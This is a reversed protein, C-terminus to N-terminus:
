SCSWGGDLPICSGNIQKARDSLLFVVLDACESISIFQGTPIRPMVAEVFGDPPLVKEDLAIDTGPVVGPNIANVRIKYKGFEVAMAKTLYDVAAKTSGYVHAGDFPMLMTSVISSVNLIACGDGKEKLRPLVCKTVHILGKVNVDYLSDIKERGIDEISQIPQAVGANNVLFDLETVDALAKETADWDALDLQITRTGPIEKEIDDLFERKRGVVIINAGEAHLARSIGLGIGRSGGTVLATKGSFM